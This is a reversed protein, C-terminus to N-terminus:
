VAATLSARVARYGPNWNNKKAFDLADKKYSFIEHWCVYWETGRRRGTEPDEERGVLVWGDIPQIKM